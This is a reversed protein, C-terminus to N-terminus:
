KTILIKKIAKTYINNQNLFSDLNHYLSEMIKRIDGELELKKHMYAEGLAISPDALIDTKPIPENLIIKFKSEGEGYIVEEGDWYKVTCTDSFLNKLMTKFYMKDIVSNNSLRKVEGLAFSM